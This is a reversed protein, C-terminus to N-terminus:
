TEKNTEEQKHVSWGCWTCTGSAVNPAYNEKGHQESCAFCRVLFFQRGDESYFNPPRDNVHKHEIAYKWDSM